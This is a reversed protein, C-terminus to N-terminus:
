KIKITRGNIRYYYCINLHLINTNQGKNNEIVLLKNEIVGIKSKFERNEEMLTSINNFLDDVKKNLRNLKETHANLSSIINKWKM